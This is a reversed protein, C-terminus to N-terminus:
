QAAQETNWVHIEEEENTADTQLMFLIFVNLIKVHKDNKVYLM